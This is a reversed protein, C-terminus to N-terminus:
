EDLLRDIMVDALRDVDAGVEGRAVAARAREVVDPRVTDEGVAGVRGAAAALLQAEGSVTVADGAAATGTRRPADAGGAPATQTLRDTTAPLAGHEIKM